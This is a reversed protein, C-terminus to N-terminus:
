LPLENVLTVSLNGSDVDIKHVQVQLKEGPQFTHNVGKCKALAGVGTIVVENGRGTTVAPIIGNAVMGSLLHISLNRVAVKQQSSVKNLAM